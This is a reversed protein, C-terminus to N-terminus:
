VRNGPSTLSGINSLAEVQAELQENRESLKKVTATLETIEGRLLQLEKQTNEQIVDVLSHLFKMSAKITTIEESTEDAEPISPRSTKKERRRPSSPSRPPPPPLDTKEYDYDDLEPALFNSAEGLTRSRPKTLPLSCTRDNDTDDLSATRGASHKTVPPIHPPLTKSSSSPPKWVNSSPQGNAPIPPLPHSLVSRFSLSTMGLFPSFHM